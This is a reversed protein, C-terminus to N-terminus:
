APVLIRVAGPVIEAVLRGAGVVDGDVEVPEAADAVVEVRRAVFRAAYPGIATHIGRGLLLELAARSGGVAGRGRAVLVDLLGDDPVLPLRPRLLGPILEGTNAVLVALADTEHVVGDVVLRVNFPRIRAAVATATAFYATIGLSRKRRDTTAAMVRADFGIGAAVLFPVPADTTVDVSEGIWARAVDVPRERATVLAAVALDPRRPIGLASALLNGTGAPVIGLTTGTGVLLAAASRVSGDGGAVALLSAGASIAERTAARGDAASATFRVEPAAGTRAAIAATASAVLADRRAPDALRSAGRAVLLFPPAAAADPM